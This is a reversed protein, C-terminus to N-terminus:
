LSGAPVYLQKQPSVSSYEGFVPKESLYRLLMDAAITGMLVKQDESKYTRRFKLRQAWEGEPASLALTFDGQHADGAVLALDTESKERTAAALALTAAIADQDSMKESVGQSLIWSSGSLAYITDDSFLWNALWGRTAQEAIALTPQKEKMKVALQALMPQDISVTCESLKRFIQEVITYAQRDDQQPGFLKVEIFPLYSRFGLIYGEPLAIDSIQDQLHSESTGLTYLRHCTTGSAHPFQRKLDPIVQEEIMQKFESPVGPTFYCLCNHIKIKFGCATGIPNDLIQSEEPLMAQKVNSESMPLNRKAFRAEIRELWDSFLVLPQEAVEAAIEASLDDNTPGLGGNVILVDSNLALMMLEEALIQRNDGATARKTLAYGQEYFLSSLWTANTDQIDGHLVEEGTSLMAIKLM